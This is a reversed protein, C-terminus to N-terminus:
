CNQRRAPIQKRAELWAFLSRADRVPYSEHDIRVFEIGHKQCFPVVVEDIHRYTSPWEGPDGPAGVDIFVVTDIREGRRVGELLMAWSDLGGGLSVVVPRGVNNDINTM